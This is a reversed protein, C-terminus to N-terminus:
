LAELSWIFWLLTGNIMVGNAAGQVDVTPGLSWRGRDNISQICRWLYTPHVLITMFLGQDDFVLCVWFLWSLYYAIVMAGVAAAWALIARHMKLARLVRGTTWAVVIGFWVTGVLNFLAFPNHLTALAYAFALPCGIAAGCVFGLLARVIEHRVQPPAPSQMYDLSSNM